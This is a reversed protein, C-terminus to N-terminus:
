GCLYTGTGVAILEGDDNHLESRVVAVKNGSRLLVASATFRKGRGPRLFDVRLDITGLKSLRAMRESGSLHQHREFAGILAMAGGAVDLVSSIVGGHLIGQIFNGILEDKMAFSMLVLEPSLQDIEIGIVNNFPIRQFFSSVAQKLEDTLEFPQQNM